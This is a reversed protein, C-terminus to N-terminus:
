GRAVRLEKRFAIIQDVDKKLSKRVEDRGYQALIEDIDAFRYLILNISKNLMRILRREKVAGSVISLFFREDIPKEIAAYVGLSLSKILLDKTLLGSVFVVPLDPEIKKVERLVDMGSLEPMKMDTLVLDPPTKKIAEFLPGATLFTQCKYDSLELEEKLLTLVPEEDDILYILGRSQKSEMLIKKESTFQIKEPPSPAEKSHNQDPTMPPFSFAISEGRLLARSADIAALFISNLERSISHQSKQGQFIEELRHMHTQLESLGFMGAGGKLSHFVRFIADYHDAFPEGKEIALLRKEGDELMEEAELRFEKLDSEDLSM